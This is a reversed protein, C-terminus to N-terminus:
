SDRYNLFAAEYDLWKEYWNLCAETYAICLEEEKTGTAPDLWKELSIRSNERFEELKKGADAMEKEALQLQWDSYSQDTSFRPSQHREKAPVAALGELLAANEASIPDPGEAQGTERKRLMRQYHEYDGQFFEVRGPSFILLCDATERIFYRDHSIFLITGTYAKFASELTERAPIDMHNTPEDLLLLNPRSELIVALVLRSKEGGSLDKVRVGAAAGPFLYAALVTRLEKETRDPFHHRFYELVSRDESIRNSHQDFWASRIGPGYKIEGSLPPVKGALTRLFTTKGVGNPGIIGIKRGRRVLFSVQHLVKDYGTELKTLELVNKSGPESPIIKDQFTHAEEPKPPDIKEMRSLMKKRSRVFAAKRPKHAFRDILGQLHEIEMQQEKYKKLTQRYNKNKQRRYDTYNGSYRTLKGDELEYVIEATRDLFYRDHSVMVVAKPYHILYEELWSVAEMDLHNTPEDLLLIDPKELLLRILAIRTQEGGSFESLQRDQDKEAFGLGTFMALFEREFEYRDRSYPDDDPSKEAALQRVLMRVTRGTDRFIQQSLMGITVHEASWIAPRFLKDDRDPSLRGAILRLLTTKGAGNKGVVAIKERHKIEFYVSQLVVEGGLSVTGGQIKYLM